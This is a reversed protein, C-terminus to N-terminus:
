GKEVYIIRSCSPCQHAKGQALVQNYLQPPITMFCGSCVGGTVNVVGQGRYRVLVKQYRELLETNVFGAEVERTKELEERDKVINKLKKGAARRTKKLDEAKLQIEQDLEDIDKQIALSKETLEKMDAELEGRRKLAIEGERQVARYERQTKVILMRSQSRRMQGKADHLQNELEAEKKSLEDLGSAIKDKQEELVIIENEKKKLELPITEEEKQFAVIKEDTKQLNILRELMTNM